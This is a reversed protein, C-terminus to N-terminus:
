AAKMDGVGSAPMVRGQSAGARRRRNVWAMLGLAGLLLACTGPEPIAMPPLSVPLGLDTLFALDLASIDYRRGRSFAVGNMLDPVLGAGARGDDNGVHRYNGFTLPVWGGYISQAQLGTFFLTDGQPTNLWATQADFTSQDGSSPLLGTKDDRWGNFGLAHGFEHLFVSRADTKGLPVTDDLLNDPTSDFWLENQLYGDIGINFVIDEASGNLDNGTRIEYAAGAEYVPAGNQSYLNYGAASTGNATGISSFGINVTLAANQPPTNFYSAWRNGASIVNSQISSYYSSYASGPDNFTVDFSLAAHASTTCSLGILIASLTAARHINSV